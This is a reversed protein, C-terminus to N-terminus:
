ILSRTDSSLKFNLVPDPAIAMQSTVGPGKRSVLLEALYLSLSNIPVFM